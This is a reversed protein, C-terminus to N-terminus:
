IWEKCDTCIFLVPPNRGAKATTWRMGGVEGCIACTEYITIMFKDRNSM